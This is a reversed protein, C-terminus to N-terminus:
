KDLNKNGSYDWGSDWGVRFHDFISYQAAAAAWCRTPWMDMRKPGQCGDHGGHKVKLKKEEACKPLANSITLMSFHM